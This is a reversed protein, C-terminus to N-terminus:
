VNEKEKPFSKACIKSFNTLANELEKTGSYAPCMDEKEAELAKHLRMLANWAAQALHYCNTPQEGDVDRALPDYQADLTHRMAAAHFRRDGNEFDKKWNLYGYKKEGAVFVEVLPELIELPLVSWDIKEDDFKIGESM